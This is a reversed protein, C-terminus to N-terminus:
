PLHFFSISFSTRPTETPSRRFIDLNTYTKKKSQGCFFTVQQSTMKLTKKLKMLVRRLWSWGVCERVMKPPGFKPSHGHSLLIVSNNVLVHYCLNILGIDPGRKSCCHIKHSPRNMTAKRLYWKEIAVFLFKSKQQKKGANELDWDKVFTCRLLLLLFSSNRGFFHNSGELHPRTPAWLEVSFPTIKVGPSGM